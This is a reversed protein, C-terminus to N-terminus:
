AQQIVLALYYLKFSLNKIENQTRMVFIYYLLNHESLKKLKAYYKTPLVYSGEIHFALLRM